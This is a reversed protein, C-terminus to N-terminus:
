ASSPLASSPENAERSGVEPPKTEPKMMNVRRRVVGTIGEPAVIAVVILALGNIAFQTTSSSTSGSLATVLGEPALAGAVLAGSITTIGALYTLAVVSLSAFVQYSQVSLSQRQYALLVGGVGALAASIAFALLKIRAVDVGAGAAPRENGRVALFAM